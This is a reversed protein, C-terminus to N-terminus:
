REETDKERFGREGEEMLSVFVKGHKGWEKEEFMRENRIRIYTHKGKPVSSGLPPRLSGTWPLAAILWDLELSALM